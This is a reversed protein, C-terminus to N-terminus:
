VTDNCVVAIVLADRYASNGTPDKVDAILHAPAHYCENPHQGWWVYSGDSGCRVALLARSHLSLKAACTQLVKTPDTFNAATCYM